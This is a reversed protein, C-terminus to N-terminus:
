GCAWTSQEKTCPLDTKSGDRWYIRLRDDNSGLRLTISKIPSLKGKFNHNPKENTNGKILEELEALQIKLQNIEADQHSYISLLEPKEHRQCGSILIGIILIM